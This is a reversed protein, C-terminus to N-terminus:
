CCFGLGGPELAFFHTSIDVATHRKWKNGRVCMAMVDHEAFRDFFLPPKIANFRM